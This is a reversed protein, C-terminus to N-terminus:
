RVAKLPTSGQVLASRSPLLPGATAEGSHTRAKHLLTELRQGMDAVIVKLREEVLDELRQQIGDISGVLKEGSERRLGQSQVTSKVTQLEERAEAVERDLARRWSALSETSDEFHKAMKEEMSRGVAETWQALEKGMDVRQRQIEGISEENRGTSKLVVEQFEERAKQGEELAKRFNSIEARRDETQAKLEGMLVATLECKLEATLEAKLEGLHEPFLLKIDDAHELTGKPLFNRLQSAHERLLKQREAEVIVQRQVEDDQMNDQERREEDRAQDYMEKRLQMLRNAERM